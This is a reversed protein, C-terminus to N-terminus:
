RNTAHFRTQPRRSSTPFKATFDSVNSWIYAPLYETIIARAEMAESMSGGGVDESLGEPSRDGYPAQAADLTEPSPNDGPQSGAAAKIKALAAPNDLLLRILPAKVGGDGKITKIIWAKIDQQNMKFLNNGEVSMVPISGKETGIAAQVAKLAGLPELGSIAMNINTISANSNCCYLSSWRHHGDVVYKENFTVIPGKLTFPGESTVFKIFEAPKISMPYALSKDIDVEMQTPRLGKVPIAGSSFAFKDDSKDGDEQGADIMALVKPDRINQGLYKVFVEYKSDLLRDMTLENLSVFKNWNEMLLKM